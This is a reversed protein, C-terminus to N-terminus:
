AAIGEGQMEPMDDAWDNGPKEPIRVEVDIVRKERQAAREIDRAVSYAAAQGVFNLDHDGFVILRKVIAPPRFKQMGGESIVAWVPLNFRISAAIATEVGEAIG